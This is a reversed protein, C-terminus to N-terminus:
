LTHAGLTTTLLEAKQGTLGEWRSIAADAWRPDLEVGLGVRRTREAAIFVTGSGAFPDYLADGIQTHNQIPITYVEVPKQTPHETACNDNQDDHIKHTGINSKPSSLDWVTTQKRDGVWNASAGKRVFYACPEHKWHYASRGFIMVNKNWIIQQRHEFDLDEFDTFVQVVNLSSSWCYVVNGPFLAYAEKWDCRDDNILQENSRNKIEHKYKEKIHKPTCDRALMQAYTNSGVKVGYPPDTVMLNPAYGELLREVLTPDESSGVALRHQGLKWIQGVQTTTPQGEGTEKIKIEEDDDGDEGEGDDKGLELLANDMALLSLDFDDLALNSLEQRLLDADWTANLALSNDAITYARKQADSLHSVEIVPVSELGLKLAAELRGHGAIIECSVSDILIPNLFGFEKISAAIQEVQEKSHVRANNNYPKLVEPNAKILKLM